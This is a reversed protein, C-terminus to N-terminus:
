DRIIYIKRIREQQENNITVKIKCTLMVKGTQSNLEGIIEGTVPDKAPEKTFIGLDGEKDTIEFEYSSPPLSSGDELRVIPRIIFKGQTGFTFFSDDGETRKVVAPYGGIPPYFVVNWDLNLDTISIPIVIHDNRQIWELEDTVAYHQEIEAGDDRKFRLTIYFRGTPHTIAADSERVYFVKRYGDNVAINTNIGSFDLSEITAKSFELIDPRKELKAYDPMLPVAGKNLVGFKIGDLMVAKESTNTIQVEVKALMRVVEISYTNSENANTINVSLFGSMPVLDDGPTLVNNGMIWSKAKADTLSAKGGVAYSLSTKGQLEAQTINAYAIIDYQGPELQVNFYEQEVAGSATRDLIKVVTNDKIFVMWWSNILETDHTQDNEMARTLAPTGLRFTVTVPSPDIKDSSSEEGCSQLLWAYLFMLLLFYIKNIFPKNM